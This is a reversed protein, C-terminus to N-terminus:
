EDEAGDSFSSKFVGGFTRDAEVAEKQAVHERWDAVQYKKYEHIADAILQQHELVKMVVVAGFEAQSMKNLRACTAFRNKVSLPVPIYLRTPWTYISGNRRKYRVYDRM